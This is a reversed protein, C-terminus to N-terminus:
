TPIVEPKIIAMISSEHVVVWLGDPSVPILNVDPLLAIEDGPQCWTVQLGIARVIIKANPPVSRDPNIILRPPPILELLVRQGCPQISEHKM